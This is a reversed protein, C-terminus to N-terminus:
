LNNPDFGWHKCITKCRSKFYVTDHKDSWRGALDEKVHIMEHAVAQILSHYTSVRASSVRLTKTEPDYDAWRSKLSEVSFNLKEPNPLRWKNFPPFTKLWTYTAKVTTPTIPLM